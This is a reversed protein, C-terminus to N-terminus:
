RRNKKEHIDQILFSVLILYGAHGGTKYHSIVHPGDLQVYIGDKAFELTMSKIANQIWTEHPGGDKIKGTRADPWHPDNQWAIYPADKLQHNRADKESGIIIDYVLKSIRGTVKNAVHRKLKIGHNAGYGTQKPAYMQLTGVIHSLIYRHKLSINTRTKIRAYTMRGNHKEIYKELQEQRIRISELRRM